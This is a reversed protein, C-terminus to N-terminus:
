LAGRMVARDVVVFLALEDLANQVRCFWSMHEVDARVGPLVRTQSRLRSRIHDRPIGVNGCGLLVPACCTLRPKGYQGQDGIGRPGSGSEAPLVRLRTRQKIASASTEIEHHHEAQNM